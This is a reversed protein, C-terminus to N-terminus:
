VTQQLTAPAVAQVDRHQRVIFEAQRQLAQGLAGTNGAAQFQQPEGVAVFDGIGVVPQRLLAAALRGANNRGFEVARCRLVALVDGGNLSGDLAAVAVLDVVGQAQFQGGVARGGCEVAAQALRHGIGREGAQGSRGAQGVPQQTERGLQKQADGGVAGDGGLRHFASRRNDAASAASAFFRASFM